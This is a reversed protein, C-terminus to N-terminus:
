CSALSGGTEEAINGMGSMKASISSSSIGRAYPTLAFSMLVMSLRLCALVFARALLSPRLCGLIFARALATDATLATERLLISALVLFRYPTDSSQNLLGSM